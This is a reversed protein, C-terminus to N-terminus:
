KAPAMTARTHVVAAALVVVAGGQHALAWDFPVALLLTGVGIMAQFIVLMALVWASGAMRKGDEDYAKAALMAAYALAAVLVLIATTRHTFQVTKANEFLNLWAPEMAVLGAPVLAGDMLPWTNYALGADMGAVLGGLAIQSLVLLIMAVGGWRALRGAGPYFDQTRGRALWLVYAFIICAFTLHTALRYQSVDTRVSLGSYVMWWGIAGQIAVLVPIAGAKLLMSGRIRGTFAFAFFGVLAVLGIVRGLQRHVWEWWFITKFADMSMGKNILQYEPIQRYKEFEELWEAESLPPITGHIPKWETISLGSDTLRTAGGVLVIAFILACLVYLWMQVARSRRGAGVRAASSAPMAIPDTLFTASQSM